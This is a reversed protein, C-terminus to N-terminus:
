EPHELCSEDMQTEPAQSEDVGEAHAMYEQQLVKLENDLSLHFIDHPLFTQAEYHAEVSGEQMLWNFSMHHRYGRRLAEFNVEGVVSNFIKSEANLNQECSEIHSMIKLTFHFKEREAQDEEVSELHRRCAEFCILRSLHSKELDRLNPYKESLCRM